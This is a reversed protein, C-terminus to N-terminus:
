LEHDRLVLVIIDPLIGHLTEGCFMFVAFHYVLNGISFKTLCPLSYLLKIPM